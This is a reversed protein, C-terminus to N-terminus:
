ETSVCSVTANFERMAGSRRDYLAMLRQQTRECAAMTAFMQSTTTMRTPNSPTNNPNSTVLTLVLMAEMIM